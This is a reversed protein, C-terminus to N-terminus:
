TISSRYAAGISKTRAGSKFHELLERARRGNEALQERTLTPAPTPTAAPTQVPRSELVDHWRKRRLWKAAKPVFRGNDRQWEQSTAFARVTNLIQKILLEDPALQQWEHRAESMEVQRPYIAAFDDFGQAHQGETESQESKQGREGEQPPYPPITQIVPKFEHKPSMGTDGSLGPSDGSSRATDGTSAQNEAPTPSGTVPSLKTRTPSSQTERKRRDSAMTPPLTNGGSMWKQSIRYTNTDGRRGSARRVLILWGSALFERLHRQVTRESVCSMKALKEVAPYIEAGSQNAFHALALAVLRKSGGDEFRDFVQKSLHESM